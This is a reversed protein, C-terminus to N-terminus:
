EVATCRVLVVDMLMGTCIGKITVSAGSRWDAPVDAPDFECVVGALESETGLVINTIDVAPDISRITGSVQVVQETTGVFRTTAAAEDATFAALLDQASITEKVPLDDAKATTRNFEMWAYGGGAVAILIAIILITRKTM